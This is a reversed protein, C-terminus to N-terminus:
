STLPLKMETQFRASIFHLMLVELVTAIPVHATMLMQTLTTTLLRQMQAVKTYAVLTLM